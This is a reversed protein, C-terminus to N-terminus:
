IFTTIFYTHITYKMKYIKKQIILIYLQVVMCIAYCCISHLLFIYDYFNRNGHQTKEVQFKERIFWSVLIFFYSYLFFLM